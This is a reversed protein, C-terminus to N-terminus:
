PADRRRPTNWLRIGLDTGDPEEYGHQVSGHNDIRDAGVGYVVIGKDITQFRISKGDNPDLPVADLLKAEVLLELSAPWAKHRLRFRECALAVMLTRLHTQSRRHSRAMGKMNSTALSLSSIPMEPVIRRFAEDQEHLPLKGAEIVQNAIRVQDPIYRAFSHPILDTIRDRWNTPPANPYMAQFQRYSMRQEDLLELNRVILSREGRLAATWDSDGIERAVIEQLVQLSEPSAEGIALAREVAKLVRSHCGGRVSHSVLFPEEALARGANLMARASELAGDASTDLSRLAIDMELWWVVRNTSDVQPVVIHLDDRKITLTFRGEPFDKLSRALPIATPPLKSVETRMLERLAFPMAAPHKWDAWAADFAQWTAQPMNNAMLAAAKQIVRASNQADDLKKRSAICDDIRWGPDAADLEAFTAAVARRTDYLAWFHWGAACALVLVLLVAARLWWRPKAPATM